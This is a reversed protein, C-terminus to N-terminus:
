EEDNQVELEKLVGTAVEEPTLEIITLDPGPALIAAADWSLEGSFLAEIQEETLASINITPEVTKTM